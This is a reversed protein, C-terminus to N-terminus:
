KLKFVSLIKYGEVRLTFIENPYPYPEPHLRYETLFYTADKLPVRKFRARDKEPLIFTNIQGPAHACDYQIIASSDQKLIYELGQRYALGWYDREFNKEVTEGKLFSFYVNQNPHYYIIFWLSHVLSIGLIVSLIVKGYWRYQPKKFPFQWIAEIGILSIILFAFYVFYLHRWGDYVVSNLFIVATIPIFLFLVFALDYQSANRISYKTPKFFRYLLFGLGTFFLGSYALPTTIFIWVPIYHWPLNTAPILQGLYFVSGDWRFRQMNQYILIFRNIPDEWLYPWFMIIFTVLLLLYFLFYPYFRRFNSKDRSIELLVLIGTIFPLMIGMIRTDIALACALAHFIVTKSTPAKMFRILTYASIIMFSLFPIDKSNYFAEGFIRPSLVLMLCGLIALHKNKFRERCLFYFFIVGSYFILFTLLHRLLFTDRWNHIGLISKLLAFPLLVTVGHDADIYTDLPPLNNFWEYKLLLEPALLGVLYKLTVLGTELEFFEDFSLGFDPYILLGSFLYLSFFFLAVYKYNLFRIFPMTQHQPYANTLFGETDPKPREICRRKGSLNNSKIL